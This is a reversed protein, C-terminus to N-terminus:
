PVLNAFFQFVDPLVLPVMGAHDANVEKYTIDFDRAKLWDRLVRSGTLSPTAGTGETILLPMTSLNEWPYGQEQVFPGSMPALGAWYSSYKAGIYWTGGSGMSHGTLFMAKDNIPYEGRVLEIVNIVDRESLAEAARREQTIGALMNAAEQPQGFVAPLRIMTGYAGGYGLASALIFGHQEALRAMQRNNQDVYSNEDNGAGHLFVVLPLASVGDWSSPVVLRYGVQANAEPFFYSRRQDGKARWGSAGPRLTNQALTRAAQIQQAPDLTTGFTIPTPASLEGTYNGIHLWDIKAGPLDGVSLRIVQLGPELYITGLAITRFAADEGSYPVAVTLLHTDCQSLELTRGASAAGVKAVVEYEGAAAVNVTYELYEGANTNVVAYGGNIAAIDVASDRYAGGENQPTSDYFGELDFNEAEVRGPLEIPTGQWANAAVGPCM